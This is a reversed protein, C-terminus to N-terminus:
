DSKDGEFYEGRSNICREWRKKWNQFADQFTNQPIARLDQLSNEKIEEVTQFQRGKLTSKLKPFVFFDAPALDPSYPSQPVVITEQKALFERILLSAHAPANDHYLMWTKNTWAEPSKRRVAERLRKMVKLYFEKNVTEGRLVFEHHVIGKWDFFFDVDGECKLSEPTSKKDHRPNEWGSRRSCKQKLMTATCGRKM